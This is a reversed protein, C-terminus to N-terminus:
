YPDTLDDIAQRKIRRLREEGIPIGPAPIEAAPSGGARRKLELLREEGIPIGPRPAETAGDQLPEACAAQPPGAAWKAPAQAASIADLCDPVSPEGTEEGTEAVGIEISSDPASTSQALCPTVYVTASFLAVAVPIGCQPRSHKSKRMM